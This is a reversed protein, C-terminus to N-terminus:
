QEPLEKRNGEEDFRDKLAKEAVFNSIVVPILQILCTVVTVSEIQRPSGNLVFLMPVVSLPLMVMGWYFWIKGIYRNAYEWAAQSKMSRRTRFGWIGNISKPPHKRFVLGVLLMIVPILLDILVMYSWFIM